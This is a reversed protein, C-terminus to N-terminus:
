TERDVLNSTPNIIKSGFVFQQGSAAPSTPMENNFIFRQRPQRSSGINKSTQRGFQSIEGLSNLGNVEFDRDPEQDTCEVLDNDSNNGGDGGLELSLQSYKNSPSTIDQEIINSEPDHQSGFGLFTESKKARLTPTNDFGAISLGRSSEFFIPAEQHHKISHYQALEAEKLELQAKLVEIKALKEDLMKEM